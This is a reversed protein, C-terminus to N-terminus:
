IYVTKTQVFFLLKVGSRASCMLLRSCLNCCFFFMGMAVCGSTRPRPTSGVIVYFAYMSLMDAGSCLGCCNTLASEPVDQPLCFFVSM